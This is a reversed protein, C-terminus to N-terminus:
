CCILLSSQMSPYEGDSFGSVMCLAFSCADACLFEFFRRSSHLMYVRGFNLM